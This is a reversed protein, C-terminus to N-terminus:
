KKKYKGWWKEFRAKVRGEVLYNMALECLEEVEEETYLVPASTILKAITIWDGINYYTGTVKSNDYNDLDFEVDQGILPLAKEYDDPHLPFTGKKGLHGSVAIQKLESLAYTLIRGNLLKVSTMIHDVTIVREIIGIDEYTGESNDTAVVKLGKKPSHIPVLVLKGKNM